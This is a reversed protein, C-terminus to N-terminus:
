DLRDQEFAADVEYHNARHAKQLLQDLEESMATDQPINRLIYRCVKCPVPKKCDLEPDEHQEQEVCEDNLEIRQEAIALQDVYQKGPPRGIQLLCAPLPHTSQYRQAPQGVCM